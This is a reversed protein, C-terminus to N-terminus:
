LELILKQKNEYCHTTVYLKTLQCTTWLIYVVFCGYQECLYNSMFIPSCQNMIELGPHWYAKVSTM